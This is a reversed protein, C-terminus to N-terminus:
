AAARLDWESGKSRNMRRLPPMLAQAARNERHRPRPSGLREALPHRGQSGGPADLYRICFTTVIPISTDHDMVKRDGRAITPMDGIEEWSIPIATYKAGATLAARTPRHRNETCTGRTTM